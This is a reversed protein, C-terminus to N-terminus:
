AKAVNTVESRPQEPRPEYGLKKLLDMMGGGANTLNPLCGRSKADAVDTAQTQVVYEFKGGGIPRVRMRWFEDFYGPVQLPLNQGYVGLFIKDEASPGSGITKIQEHGIVIVCIPLSRLIMLCQKVESIALGWHQIEPQGGLRSSNAMVYNLAYEALSSLSDLALFEFPYRGRQCDNAIGILCEKTRKFALASTHPSPELFQKADVALRAAKFKDELANATRLGDDLDIIQLKEGLTLTLATKGTGPGSYILIKPPRKVLDAVKM